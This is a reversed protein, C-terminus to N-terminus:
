ANFKLNPIARVVDTANTVNLAKLEKGTLVTVAIGVDRLRQERRQATVVIDGGTVAPAPAPSQAFAPTGLVLYVATLGLCSRQLNRSRIMTKPM